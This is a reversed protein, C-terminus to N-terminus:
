CIKGNREGIKAGMEGGLLRQCKGPLQREGKANNDVRRHGSLPALWNIMPCPTMTKGHKWWWSLGKHTTRTSLVPLLFNRVCAKQYITIKCTENPCNIQWASLEIFALSHHELLPDQKSVPQSKKGREREREKLRRKGAGWVALNSIVKYEDAQAFIPRGKCNVFM